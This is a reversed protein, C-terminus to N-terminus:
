KPRNQKDGDQGLQKLIEDINPVEKENPPFLDNQPPPVFDPMEFKRQEIPVINTGPKEPSQFFLLRLGALLFLGVWLLWWHGGGGGESYQPTATTQARTRPQAATTSEENRGIAALFQPDLAAIKPFDKRLKRAAVMWTKTDKGIRRLLSARQILRATPPFVFLQAVAQAVTKVPQTAEIAYPDVFLGARLQELWAALPVNWACRRALDQLRQQREDFSLDFFSFAFAEVSNRLRDELEFVAVNTQLCEPPLPKAPQQLIEFAEHVPYPPVFGDDRLSRLFVERVQDPPVDQRVGLKETAWERVDVVAIELKSM